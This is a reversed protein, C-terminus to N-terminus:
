LLYKTLLAYFVMRPAIPADFLVESGSLACLRAILSWHGEELKTYIEEGNEAFVVEDVSHESKRSDNTNRVAGSTGLWPQRWQFWNSHEKPWERCFDLPNGEPWGQLKTLTCFVSKGGLAIFFFLFGPACCWSDQNQTTFQNGPLSQPSMVWSPKDQSVLFIGRKVLRWLVGFHVARLNQRCWRRNWLFRWTFGVIM